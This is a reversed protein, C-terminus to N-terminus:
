AGALEQLQFTYSEIVTNTLLKKCAQEVIENAEGENAASFSLEIMKGVRVEEVQKFGLNHLGLRTAKGQPDLIEPRPMIHITATYKV